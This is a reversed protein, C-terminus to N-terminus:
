VYQRTQYNRSYGFVVMTESINNIISLFKRVGVYLSAIKITFMHAKRYM